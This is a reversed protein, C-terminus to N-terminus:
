VGVYANNDGGIAPLGNETLFRNMQGLTVTGSNFRNHDGVQGYVNRSVADDDLGSAKLTSITRRMKVLLVPDTIPPHHAYPM